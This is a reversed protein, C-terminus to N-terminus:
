NEVRSWILRREKHKNGENTTKYKRIKIKGAYFVGETM